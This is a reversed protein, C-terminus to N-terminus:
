SRRLPLQQGRELKSTAWFPANRGSFSAMAWKRTATSNRGPVLRVSPSTMCSTYTTAWSVPRVLHLERRTIWRSGVASGAGRTSTSGLSTQRRLSSFSQSWSARKVASPGFIIVLVLAPLLMFARSSFTYALCVMARPTSSRSASCTLQSPLASRLIQKSRLSCFRTTTSEGTTLKTRPSNVVSATPWVALWHQMTLFRATCFHM